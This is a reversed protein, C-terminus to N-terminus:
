ATPVIIGKEFPLCLCLSGWFASYNSVTWAWLTPKWNQAPFSSHTLDCFGSPSLKWFPNDALNFAASLSFTHDSCPFYLFLLNSGSDYTVKLFFPNMTQYVCSGSQFHNLIYFCCIYIIKQSSFCFFSSFSSLIYYPDQSPLAGPFYPQSM